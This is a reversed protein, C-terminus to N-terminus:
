TMSTSTHIFSCSLSFLKCFWLKMRVITDGLTRWRATKLGLLLNPGMVTPFKYLCVGKYTHHNSDKCDGVFWSSSYNRCVILYWWEITLIFKNRQLWQINIFSNPARCLQSTTTITLRIGSSYMLTLQREYKLCNAPQHHNCYVPTPECRAPACVSSTRHLLRHLLRWM